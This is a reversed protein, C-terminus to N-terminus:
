CLLLPEDNTSLTALTATRQQKSPLVSLVQSNALAKVSQLRQTNVFKRMIQSEVSKRNTHYSGLM